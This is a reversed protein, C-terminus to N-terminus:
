RLNHLLQFGPYTLLELLKRHNYSFRNHFDPTMKDAGANGSLCLM